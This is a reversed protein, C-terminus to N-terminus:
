KNIKNEVPTTRPVTVYTHAHMSGFINYKNIYYKRM